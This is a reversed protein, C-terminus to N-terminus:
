INLNVSSLQLQQVALSLLDFQHLVRSWIVHASFVRQKQYAPDIIYCMHM